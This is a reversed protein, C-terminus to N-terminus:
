GEMYDDILTYHKGFYEKGNKDEILYYRHKSNSKINKVVSDGFCRWLFSKQMSPVKEYMSYVVYDVANGHDGVVNVVDVSFDEFLSNYMMKRVDEFDDDNLTQSMIQVNRTIDRYMANYKKILTTVRGLVRKDLDEVGCSMLCSYDFNPKYKSYKADFDINEIYKCLVNMSSDSNFLPSYNYYSKLFKKQEPSKDVIKILDNIGMGFLRKCNRDYTRKHQKYEVMKQPYVYGFFYTKKSCCISNEFKIRENEKKIREIEEQSM